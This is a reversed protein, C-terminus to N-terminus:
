DLGLLYKFRTALGPLFCNCNIILESYLAITKVEDNRLADM